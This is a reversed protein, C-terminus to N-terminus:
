DGHEQSLQSQELNRYTLGLAWDRALRDTLSSRGICLEWLCIVYIGEDYSIAKSKAM